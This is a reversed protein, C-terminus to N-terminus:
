YNVSMLCLGKAPATPGALSRKKKKFIEEITEPAMKERGIELLTGVITRVMYRLYGNAEVTYVVEKGKRKIESHTIERIPNHFRNSSFPSFDAKRKFLSAAESM